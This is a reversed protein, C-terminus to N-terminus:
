IHINQSFYKGKSSPRTKPYLTYAEYEIRMAETKM